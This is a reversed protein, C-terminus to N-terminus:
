RLFALNAMLDRLGRGRCFFFHPSFIVASKLWVGTATSVLMQWAGGFQVLLWDLIVIGRSELLQCAGM